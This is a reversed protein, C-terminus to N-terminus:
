SQYYLQCDDSPLDACEMAAFSQYYLQCDDLPLDACEMAAFSQYYLQCDDLPLDACEMAALHLAFQRNLQMKEGWSSQKWFPFYIIAKSQM